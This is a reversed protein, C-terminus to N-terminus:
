YAYRIEQPKTLINVIYKSMTVISNWDQKVISYVSRTNPCKYLEGAWFLKCAWIVVAMTVTILIYNSVVRLM